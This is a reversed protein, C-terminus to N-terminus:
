LRRLRSAGRGNTVYIAYASLALGILVIFVGLFAVTTVM